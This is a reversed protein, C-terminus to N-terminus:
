KINGVILGTYIATAQSTGTLTIGFAEKNKGNIYVDVIKGRNAEIFDRSSVVNIRKDYCAPYFSCSKNLNTQTNGAAANIIIGKDLLKYILKKEQPIVGTGGLSLNLIDPKITLTYKLAKIFNKINLEPNYENYYKIIIICYDKNRINKNILGVVNTGHGNKDTFVKTNTFSTSKNPCLHAKNIYKSQLGTDIVAIRITKANLQICCFMIILLYKM